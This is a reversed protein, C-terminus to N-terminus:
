SLKDKLVREVFEIPHQTRKATEYVSMGEKLFRKVVSKISEGVEIVHMDPDYFRIVKQGWPHEILDHIYKVNKNKNLKEVFAEIDEEEFYLEFSNSNYKIEEEDIKLMNSFHAKLQISFDGEYVVNEGFDYKVKQGLIDEYFRRSVEIDTVVILPCNFKM